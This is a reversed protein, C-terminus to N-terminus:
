PVPRSREAPTPRGNPKWTPVPGDALLRVAAAGSSVVRAMHEYDLRDAEDTVHHYDAHMNYSSLTHAPIGLYAFAINDSRQFFRQDPRPDAVLPIGRERLMDGMTSCDFGTLWGRGPGGALSDPRGIMEIELNAV